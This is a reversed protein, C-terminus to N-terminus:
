NKTLDSIFWRVPFDPARLTTTVIGVAPIPCTPLSGVGGLPIVTPITAERPGITYTSIVTTGTVSDTPMTVKIEYSGVYGPNWTVVGEKTLQELHPSRPDGPAGVGAIEWQLSGYDNTPNDSSTFFQTRRFGIFGIKIWNWGNCLTTPIADPAILDSADTSPVTEPVVEVVADYYLSPSGCGTTRVSITVTGSFLPDLRSDNKCNISFNSFVMLMTKLQPQILEQLLICHPAPTPNVAFIRLTNTDSDYTADVDPDPNVAGQLANGLEDIDNVAPDATAATTTLGQNVTIIYNVTPSLTASDATLTILATQIQEPSVSGAAEPEIKWDFSQYLSNFDDDIFCTYFDTTGTTGGGGIDPRDQCITNNYWKGGSNILANYISNQDKM